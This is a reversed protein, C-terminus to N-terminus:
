HCTETQLVGLSKTKQITVRAEVQSKVTYIQFMQCLKPLCFWSCYAGTKIEFPSQLNVRVTMVSSGLIVSALDMLKAPVMIIANTSLIAPM